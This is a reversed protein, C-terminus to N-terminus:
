QSLTPRRRNLLCMVCYDEQQWFRLFDDADLALVERILLRDTELETLEEGAQTVTNDGTRKAGFRLSNKM